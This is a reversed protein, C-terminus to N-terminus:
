VLRRGMLAKAKTRSIGAGHHGEDGHIRPAEALIWIRM